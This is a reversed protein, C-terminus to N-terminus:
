KPQSPWVVTHFPEDLSTRCLVIDVPENGIAKSVAQALGEFYRIVSEKDGNQIVAAITQENDNGLRLTLRGQVRDIQEPLNAAFNYNVELMAGFVKAATAADVAETHFMTARGNPQDKALEEGLKNSCGAAFALFLFSGVVLLRM